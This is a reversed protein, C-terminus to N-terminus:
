NWPHEAGPHGKEPGRPGGEAETELELREGLERADEGRGPQPRGPWVRAGGGARPRGEALAWAALEEPGPTGVPGARPREEVGRAAPLELVDGVGGVRSRRRERQSAPAGLVFASSGGPLAKRGSRPKRCTRTSRFSPAFTM